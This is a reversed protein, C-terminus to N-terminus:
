HRWWQKNVIVEKDWRLPSGGNARDLAILSTLSDLENSHNLLFYDGSVLFEDLSYRRTSTILVRDNSANNTYYLAVNPVEKKQVIDSVLEYRRCRIDTYFDFIDKATKIANRRQELTNDYNISHYEMVVKITNLDDLSIKTTRFNVDPDAAITICKEGNLYSPDILWGALLMREFINRLIEIKRAM